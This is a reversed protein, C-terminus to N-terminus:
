KLRHEQTEKLPNLESIENEIRTIEALSSNFHEHVRQSEEVISKHRSAEVAIGKEIQNIDHRTSLIKENLEQLQQQKNEFVQKQEDAELKLDSLHIKQNM